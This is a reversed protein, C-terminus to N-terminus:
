TTCRANALQPALLEFGLTEATRWEVPGPANPANSLISTVMIPRALPPLVAEHLPVALGAGPSFSSAVSTRMASSWGAGLPLKPCGGRCYSNSGVISRIVPDLNTRAALRPRAKRLPFAKWNSGM